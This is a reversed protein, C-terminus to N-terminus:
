FDKKLFSNTNHAPVPAKASLQLIKVICLALIFPNIFGAALAKL